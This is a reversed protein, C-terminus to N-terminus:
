HVQHKKPVFSFLPKPVSEASVIQLPHILDISPGNIKDIYGRALLHAGKLGEWEDYDLGWQRAKAKTLTVTFDRRWDEGFNLYLRSQRITAERVEGEVLGYRGYRIEDTANHHRFSPLAWVGKGAEYAKQELQMLHLIFHFQDSQPFVRCLGNAVLKAQVTDDIAYSESMSLYVLRKQWRDESIITMFPHESLDLFSQFYNGAHRGIPTKMEPAIIDALKTEKGALIFRDGSLATAVSKAIVKDSAKANVLTSSFGVLGGATGALIHRRSIM